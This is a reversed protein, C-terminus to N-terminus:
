HADIGLGRLEIARVVEALSLVEGRPVDDTVLNTHIGLTVRIDRVEAGVAADDPDIALRPCRFEPGRWRGPRGRASPLHVLLIPEPKGLEGDVLQTHEVGARLLKLLPLERILPGM